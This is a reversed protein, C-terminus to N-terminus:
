PQREKTTVANIAAKAQDWADHKRDSIRLVERMAPLVNRLAECEREAKDLRDLLAAIDAAYDLIPSLPHEAIAERLQKIIDDTM